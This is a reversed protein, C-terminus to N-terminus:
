IDNRGRQHSCLKKLSNTLTEMLMEAPNLQRKNQGTQIILDESVPVSQPIAALADKIM